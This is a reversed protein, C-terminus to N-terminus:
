MQLVWLVWSGERRVVQLNTGPSYSRVTPSSVSAQEHLKAALMVKAWEVSVTQPESSDRGATQIDEPAAALQREMNQDADDGQM